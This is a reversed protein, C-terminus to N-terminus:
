KQVGWKEPLASIMKLARARKIIHRKVAEPDKARGYAQVANHLDEADAIPYEGGKMATGRKAMKLRTKFDYKDTGSATVPEPEPITSDPEQVPLSASGPERYGIRYAWDYIEDDSM